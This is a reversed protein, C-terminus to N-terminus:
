WRLYQSYRWEVYHPIPQLYRFECVSNHPSSAHTTAFWRTTIARYNTEAISVDLDAM